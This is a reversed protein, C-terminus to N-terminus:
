FCFTLVRLHDIRCRSPTRMEHITGHLHMDDVNVCASKVGVLVEDKKLNDPDPAPLEGVQVHDQVHGIEPRKTLFAAKMM